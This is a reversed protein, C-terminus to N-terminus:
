KLKVWEKIQKYNVGVSKLFSRGKLAILKWDDRRSSFCEELIKLGVITSLIDMTLKNIMGKLLQHM